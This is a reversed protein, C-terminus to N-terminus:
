LLERYRGPTIGEWKKFTRILVSSNSFGSRIAVENINIDTNQLLRKANKLRTHTIEYSISVGYKEKYLKSLHSASMEMVEELFSLSLQTNSYNEEIFKRTKQCIGQSSKKEQMKKQFMFIIHAFYEKFEVISEKELLEHIYKQRDEMPYGCQLGVRNVANIVDFKFCEMTDLSIHSNIRYVDFIKVTFDEVPEEGVPKELYDELMASLKAQGSSLYDFQRGDVSEFSILQGSGLIYRYSFAKQAEKYADRIGRIGEHIRSYGITMLFEFNDELFCKGEELMAIIDKEQTNNSLNLLFVYRSEAIWLLYGKDFRNFIEEFVNGIIFSNISSQSADNSELRIVGVVFRNSCLQIGNKEFLDEQSGEETVNGELLLSLFRERLSSRTEKLTQKEEMQEQFLKDLFEFEAIGQLNYDPDLKGQFKDMMQGIPRYVRRSSKAVFLMSMVVCACIGIMSFVRLDSLQEWFFETPMAFAYYVNMEASEYVQMIYEEQGFMTEYPNGDGTYDELNYCVDTSVVSVLLEKNKDFMVITGGRGANNGSLLSALYDSRLIVSVVFGAKTGKVSQWMSVCLLKEEGDPNIIDIVPYKSTCELNQYFSEKNDLRSYYSTYYDSKTLSGYNGSIIYEDQPYYVFVDQFKEKMYQGLMQCMMYRKYAPDKEFNASVAYDQVTQQNAISIATERMEIVVTDILEFVQQLTNQNSLLMQDKIVAQSKVNLIVITVIPVFLVILFYIVIKFLFSKTKKFRERKM